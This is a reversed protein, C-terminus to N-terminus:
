KHNYPTLGNPLPGSLYHSLFGAAAVVQSSKRILLLPKIHVIGCVPHCMGCGNIYWNFAFSNHVVGFVPSCLIQLMFSLLECKCNFKMRNNLPYVMYILIKICSVYKVFKSIVKMNQKIFIKANELIM